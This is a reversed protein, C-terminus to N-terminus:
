GFVLHGKKLLDQVGECELQGISSGGCFGGRGNSPATGGCGRCRFGDVFEVLLVIQLCCSDAVGVLVVPIHCEVRVAEGRRLWCSSHKTQLKSHQWLRGGPLWLTWFSPPDVEVYARGTSRGAVAREMPGGVRATSAPQLVSALLFGLLAGVRLGSINSQEQDPPEVAGERPVEREELEWFKSDRLSVPNDQCLHTYSEAWDTLQEGPEARGVMRKRQEGLHGEKIWVEDQGSIDNQQQDQPGIGGKGLVEPEWPERGKWHRLNGPNDQCLCTCVKTLGTVQECPRTWRAMAARSKSARTRRPEKQDELCKAPGGPDGSGPRKSDIVNAAEDGVNLEVARKLKGYEEILTIYSDLLVKEDGDPTVWMSSAKIRELTNWAKFSPRHGAEQLERLTAETREWFCQKGGEQFKAPSVVDCSNMDRTRLKISDKGSIRDCKSYMSIAANAIVDKELLRRKSIEAHMVQSRKLAGVGGCAKLGVVLSTWTITDTVQADLPDQVLKKWEQSSSWSEAVLLLLVLLELIKM